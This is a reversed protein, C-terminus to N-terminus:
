ATVRRALGPYHRVLGDHDLELEATFAERGNEVSAYRVRAGDSTVGLHEYRQHSVHVGLDPVSIWAVVLDAHGPRRHLCHRLVPMANTLPSFGLDCDLAEGLVVADGGPAALDVEGESDVEATWKGRTDRELGLRREWGEGVATIRLSRTICGEASADLRYDVRYPLPDTALQTGRACLGDGFEVEAVEARWGPAWGREGAWIVLRGSEFVSRIRQGSQPMQM